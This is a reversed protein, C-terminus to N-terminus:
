ERSATQIIAEYAVDYISRRGHCKLVSQDSEIPGQYFAVGSLIPVNAPKIEGDGGKELRVQWLGGGSTGGYNRTKSARSFELPYDFYDYDGVVYQRSVFGSSSLELFIVTKVRRQFDLEEKTLKGIFGQVIWLGDAIAPPDTLM